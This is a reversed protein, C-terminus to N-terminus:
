GITWVIQDEFAAFDLEAGTTEPEEVSPAAAAVPIDDRLQLAAEWAAALQPDTMDDLELYEGVLEEPMEVVVDPTIGIKHVKKGSPMFYQACTVQMGDDRGNLGSLPIVYQMIGKGYTQTGVLKARGADQLSGALIESSSASGENVLFVLPIDDKGDTTYEESREGYRDESYFLMQRDLFIDAIQKADEVWGGGNDRLDVILATAGADELEKLGNAFGEVCDGSFEYLTLLGVQDELMTTEIWNVNIQARPVTFVINEGRRVVELEVTDAEKGRMLNAAESMTEANVTLDDVRILLDGKRIGIKEAPSNKFVRQITVTNDNYNGLMQIGVGAYNGEDDERMAQWSDPDYYFSYVDGLGEFMGWIASELLREQDPAEIYYLDIWEYIEALKEFRRLYDYEEKTITVTEPEKNFFSFLGGGSAFAGTATLILASVLSLLMIWRKKM